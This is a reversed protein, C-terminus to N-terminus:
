RKHVDDSEHDSIHNQLEGNTSRVKPEGVVDEQGNHLWLLLSYFGFKLLLLSTITIVEVKNIRVFGNFVYLGAKRFGNNTNAGM